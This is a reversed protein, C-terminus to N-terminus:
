SHEPGRAAPTGGRSIRAAGAAGRARGRGGKMRPACAFSGGSYRRFCLAPREGRVGRDRLRPPPSDFLPGKDPPGCDEDKGAEARATMLRSRRIAWLATVRKPRAVASRRPPNNLAAPASKMEAVRGM